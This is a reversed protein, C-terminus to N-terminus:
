DSVRPKHADLARQWAQQPTLGECFLFVWADPFVDFEGPEYGYEGEIVDEKLIRLWDEYERHEDKWFDRLTDEAKITIDDM